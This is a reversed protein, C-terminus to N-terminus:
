DLDLKLDGVGRDITVELKSNQANYKEFFTAMEKSMPPNKGMMVAEQEAATQPKMRVSVKHKGVVAGKYQSDYELVFRGDGDTQGWSPRGQQPMFDIYANTVPKGKYTLTGNVKVVGPGGGCGTVGLLLLPLAWALFAKRISPM